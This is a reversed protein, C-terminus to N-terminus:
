QVVTSLPVKQGASNRVYIDGIDEPVMRNGAKAQVMVRWVRGFRSFNNVYLGGLYANMADYIDPLRVGMMGAKARQANVELQPVTFEMTGRLATLNKDKRAEAMFQQKVKFLDAISANGRAELQVDFGSRTGLGQISPPMVTAVTGAPNGAFKM